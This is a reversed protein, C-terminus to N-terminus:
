DVCLRIPYPRSQFTHLSEFLFTFKYILAADRFRYTSTSFYRGRLLHELSHFQRNGNGANMTDPAGYEYNMRSVLQQRHGKDVARSAELILLASCFRTEM